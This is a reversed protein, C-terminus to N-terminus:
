RGSFLKGEHGLQVQARVHSAFSLEAKDRRQGTFLVNGQAFVIIRCNIRGPKFREYGGARPAAKRRAAPQAKVRRPRRLCRWQRGSPRRPRGELREPKREGKEAGIAETMEQELVEHLVERLMEKLSDKEVGFIEQLNIRRGLLKKQTM